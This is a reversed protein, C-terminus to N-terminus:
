VGSIESAHLRKLREPDVRVVMTKEQSYVVAGPAKAKRVFRVLTASVEVRPEGKADSHHAALTAADLVLEQTAVQGKELAVVVHAGPVGRAHLWLHHPKAHGFTLADNKLAGKGVWIRTGDAGQLERWAKATPARKKTPTAEPSPPELEAQELRTREADLAALRQTALEVGRTLRKYTHFYREAQAKASKAPDLPIAVTRSTGDENWAEVELVAAGKTALHQHRVLLEGLERAKAAEPGRAAELEVKARTRALAKLQKSRSREVQTVVARTELDKFLTEASALVEFPTGAALRSQGQTAAPESPEPWVEGHRVAQAPAVPAQALVRGQETLLVVSRGLSLVVTRRAAARDFDLRLEHGHAHAASLRAGELERRLVQQFGSAQGPESLNKPRELLGGARAQNPLACLHLAWTNGPRRLTLFTSTPPTAHVKQVSAGQFTQLAQAIQALEFPRLSM